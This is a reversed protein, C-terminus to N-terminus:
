ISEQFVNNLITILVLVPNCLMKPKACSWKPLHTRAIIVADLPSAGTRSSQPTHLIEENGNSRRVSRSLTTTGTLNRDM